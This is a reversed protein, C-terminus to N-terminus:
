LSWQEPDSSIRHCNNVREDCSPCPNQSVMAMQKDGYAVCKNRSRYEAGCRCFCTQSVEGLSEWDIESIKKKLEKDM